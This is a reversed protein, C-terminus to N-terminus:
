KMEGEKCLDLRAAYAPYSDSSEKLYGLHTTRM